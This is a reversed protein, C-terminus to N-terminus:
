QPFLFPCKGTVAPRLCVVLMSPIQGGQKRHTGDGTPAVHTATTVKHSSTPPTPEPDTDSLDETDPDALVQFSNASCGMGIRTTVTIQPVPRHAPKKRKQHTKPKPTHPPHILSADLPIPPTPLFTADALRPSRHSRTPSRMTGAEAHSQLFAEVAEISIYSLRPSTSPTSGPGNAIDEQKSM